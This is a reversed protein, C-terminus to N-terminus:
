RKGLLRLVANAIRDIDNHTLDQHIPLELLHNRWGSVEQALDPPCASHPIYWYNGTEIGLNSLGAQFRIKDQIMAPFFLPCVGDPLEPFPISIQGLLRSALHKFNKRRRDIVDQPNMLRMMYLVWKSANYNLLRPDWGSGSFITKKRDWDLSKRISRSLQAIWHELHRWGSARLNKHFLDAAQVLTSMFPANRLKVAAGEEKNVLFGGHPIPLTKFVSFIAIDGYSGLWGRDDRSFLSLACDEILKLNNEDCIKQIPILPQPFGFYHIIYLASVDDDILQKIDSLNVTLDNEIRYFRLKFGAALLTDIEVGQFYSPVLITSKPPLRLNPLGHYLAVRGSFTWLGNSSSFPFWRKWKSSGIKFLAYPPLSHYLPIISHGHKM